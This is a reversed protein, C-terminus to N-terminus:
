AGIHASIGINRVNSMYGEPVGSFCAVGEFPKMLRAKCPLASLRKLSSRLMIAVLYYTHPAIFFNFKTPSVFNPITNVLDM